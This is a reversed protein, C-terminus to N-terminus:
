DSFSVAVGVIQFHPVERIVLEKDYRCLKQDNAIFIKISSENSSSHFSTIDFYYDTLFTCKLDEKKKFHAELDFTPNHNQTDWEIKLNEWDVDRFCTVKFQLHDYTKGEKYYVAQKLLKWEIGSFQDNKRFIILEEYLRKEVIIYEIAIGDFVEKDNAASDNKDIIIADQESYGWGGKIPLVGGISKFDEFLVQKLSYMKGINILQINKLEEM